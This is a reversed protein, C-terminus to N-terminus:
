ERRVPRGLHRQEDDADVVALREGPVVPRVGGDVEDDAVAAAPPAAGDVRAGPAARRAIGRAGATGCRDRRAASRGRSRRQLGIAILGSGAVGVLWREAANGRSRGDWQPQSWVSPGRLPSLNRNDHEMAEGPRVCHLGRSLKQGTTTWRGAQLSKMCGSGGASVNKAVGPPTRQPPGRFRASRIMRTPNAPMGNARRTAPTPM